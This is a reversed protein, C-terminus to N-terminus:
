SVDVSVVSMIVQVQKKVQQGAGDTVTCEFVATVTDDVAVTATFLTSAASPNNATIAAAGSIRVWSYTYPTSGGVPTMTVLGTSITKTGGGTKGATKEIYDTSIEASFPLGTGGFAFGASSIIGPLM